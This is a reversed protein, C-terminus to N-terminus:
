VTGRHVTHSCSMPNTNPTTNFQVEKHVTHSCSMPNPTPTTNFQVEKHVTHSCSMPHLNGPEVVNQCMLCLKRNMSQPVTPQRAPLSPMRPAPHYAQPVSIPFPGTGTSPPGIPGLSQRQRQREALTQAVQQTLEEVSLGAMTGRSTKIQQLVSTLQPRTCQPFRSQLKELLVELKGAPKSSAPQPNSPLPSPIGSPQAPTQSTVTATPISQTPMAAAPPLHQPPSPIGSPQAPTQSTVTATPISQTPMAAAPPLHQPATFPMVMSVPPASQRLALPPMYYHPMGGPMAMSVPPRFVPPPPLAMPVAPLSPVPISPLSKLKAGNRVLQIHGNYQNQVSTCQPFRSQLKELLVELKGAPKSSAPQPNSPLPSPIGSPQAPTQSTVTATPISQTPLAAAPPPHQPATFPMVMSVPPASQRLALPPMYYHPMGGPMAMSVPPRFVPPPPLAMPVAPLSPVPISPLSKLKAGNRVLQIHGNYQNQVNGMEIRVRGIQTDWEHRQQLNDISGPGLGGKNSKLVGAVEGAGKLGRLASRLCVSRLNQLHQEAETLWEETQALMNERQCELVAVQVNGMEIRVRGIQTDWEHRQQLNDISGPGLGGKNSKLVGAVEGAGKLGRLASRLCVSRLNQLHQEAETLWEETQALMNERQCELVAVETNLARRMEEEIRPNQETLQSRLEALEREWCERKVEEELRDIENKMEQEKQSCEKNEKEFKRRNEDRKEILEQVQELTRQYVRLREERQEQLVRTKLQLTYLTYPAPHLVQYVRLREERQEQLVRTKLQLTYLTYPAPHLVQYVRLREERLEQYVRLREERLEQLVRTKLQLTYLTYPAPHLVQYVRLREERLEQLVRTKLQLTYLTYPAPHLVQYVRLREERLEQLVRTKLQLTYLTYPAPHLVQYVRLREERQEQVEREETQTVGDGEGDGRCHLPEGQCAPPVTTAPEEVSPSRPDDSSWPTYGPERLEEKLFAYVEEAMELEWGTLAQVHGTFRGESGWVTSAEKEAQHHFPVPCPTDPLDGAVSLANESIAMQTLERDLQSDLTSAPEEDSPPVSEWEGSAMATRVAEWSNVTHSGKNSGLFHSIAMQTLERDLQSDLTSVPEEDSPPVSEWEGSAM